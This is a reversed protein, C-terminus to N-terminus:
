GPRSYWRKLAAHLPREPSANGSRPGAPRRCRSGLIATRRSLRAARGVRRHHGRPRPRLVASPRRPRCRRASSPPEAGHAQLRALVDDIDEVAFMVSRAPGAHEATREEARRQGGDAHPVEHLPNLRRPATVPTRMMAIDVRINTLDRQCPGGFTGRARRRARWRWGLSSSSHRRPRSTTSPVISVHDLLPLLVSPTRFRRFSGRRNLAVNDSEAPTPPDRGDLVVTDGAGSM